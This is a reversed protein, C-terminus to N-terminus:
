AGAESAHATYYTDRSIMNNDDDSVFMTNNNHRCMIFSVNRKRFFYGFLCVSLCALLIYFFLAVVRYVVASPSHSPFVRPSLSFLIIYFRTRSCSSRGIYYYLIYLLIYGHIHGSSCPYIGLM